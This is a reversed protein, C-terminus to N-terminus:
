TETEAFPRLLSEADSHRLFRSFVETGSRLVPDDIAYLKQVKVFTWKLLDTEAKSVYYEHEASKGLNEALARAASEDDAELLVIREEWDPETEPRKSHVARFFLNGAYWM